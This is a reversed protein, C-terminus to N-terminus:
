WEQGAVHLFALIAVPETTTQHPADPSIIRFPNELRLLAVDDNMYKSFFHRFNEFDDKGIQKLREM